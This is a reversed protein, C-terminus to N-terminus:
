VYLGRGDRIFMNNLSAKRLTQRPAVSDYMDYWVNALSLIKYSLPEM